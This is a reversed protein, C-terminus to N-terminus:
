KAMRHLAALAAVRAENEYGQVCCVTRPAAASAAPPFSARERHHVMGCDTDSLAYRHMLACRAAPVESFCRSM